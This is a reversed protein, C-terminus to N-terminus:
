VQESIKKSETIVDGMSYYSWGGYRGFSVIKNKALFNLIKRRVEFYNHDYVPYGYDIYNRNFVIAQTKDKIIGTKVLNDLLQSEFKAFNFPYQNKLFSSELYLAGKNEPTLAPSINHFFGVRFFPIKTEPFYIWHKNPHVCDEIGINLNYISLWQLKKFLLQIERPLNIIIKGLEPLPITSFLCDYKEQHGNAFIVKKQNLDIRQACHNNYVNNLENKFTSAVMAIGGSAPYWFYDNYGDQNSLTPIFRQAWRWSLSALPIQWFKKNYPIFFYDAITSGFNNHVWDLFNNSNNKYTKQKKVKDLDQQCKKTITKNKLYKFNVQFPCPIFQDQMYVYSKRRYKKLPVPMLNSILNYTDQNRFHLFHGSIDFTFGGQTFSRCLGGCQIDKEFIASKKGSKQLFYGLSLGALGAGLIINKKNIMVM